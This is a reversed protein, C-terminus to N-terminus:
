LWRRVKQCYTKYGDGFLRTLAREEPIIQFRTIYLIFGLWALPALVTGQKIGYGILLLLLGLYMPNRTLRYLGDTVLASANQPKIPNPTTHAKLFRALSVIDLGLGLTMIAWGLVQQGSFTIVLVPLIKAFGWIMAGCVLGVVPPPVMHELWHPAATM